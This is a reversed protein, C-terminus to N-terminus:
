QDKNIAASALRGKWSRYYWVGDVGEGATDMSKGIGLVAAKNIKTTRWKLSGSYYWVYGCVKLSYNVDQRFIYYDGGTTQIIENM